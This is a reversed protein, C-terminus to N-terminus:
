YSDRVVSIVSNVSINKLSPTGLSSNNTMDKRARLRLRHNPSAIGFKRSIAEAASRAGGRLVDLEMM